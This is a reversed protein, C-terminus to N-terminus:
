YNIKIQEELAKRRLFLSLWDDSYNTLLTFLSVIPTIVLFIIVITEKKGSPGGLYFLLWGILFIMVLNLLMLIYKMFKKIVNKTKGHCIQRKYLGRALM